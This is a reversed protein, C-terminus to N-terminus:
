RGRAHHLRGAARNHDDGHEGVVGRGERPIGARDLRSHIAAELLEHGKAGVLRAAEIDDDTWTIKM